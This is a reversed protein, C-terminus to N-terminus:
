ARIVVTGAARDHLGRYDRDWLLAPVVTLLLVTRALAWGPGVPGGDLRVVRLGCVRKGITLGLLGTLLWTEVGFAALPWLTGRSLQSGLAEAVVTVTLLAILWDICLAGLRRGYGAVSGSGHPPLGLREGAFGPDAGASRGGGLWSGPLGTRDNTSGDEPSGDASGAPRRADDM